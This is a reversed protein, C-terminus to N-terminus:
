QDADNAEQDAPNCQYEALWARNLQRQSLQTLGMVHPSLPEVARVLLRGDPSLIESNRGFHELLDGAMGRIFPPDLFACAAPRGALSRTVAKYCRRADLKLITARQLLDWDHITKKLHGATRADTEVFVVHPAGRSLAELGVLGSGACLDLFPGAQLRATTFISMVTERVLGTAPRSKSGRPPSVERGKLEGAIIRM